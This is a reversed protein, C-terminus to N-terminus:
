SPDPRRRARAAVVAGILAGAGLLAVLAVGQGAPLGADASRNSAALDARRALSDDLGGTQALGGGGTDPGGPPVVRVEGQVQAGEACEVTVTHHGSPAERDIEGVGVLRFDEEVPELNIPDVFVSSTATAFSDLGCADTDVEVTDGPEVASPVITVGDDQAGNQALRAPAADTAHAAYAAPAPPAMVLLLGLAIAAGVVRAAPRVHM